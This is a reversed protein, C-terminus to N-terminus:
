SKKPKWNGGGEPYIYKGDECVSRVSGSFMEFKEIDTTDAELKAAELVQQEDADDPVDIEVYVEGHFNMSVAIKRKPM